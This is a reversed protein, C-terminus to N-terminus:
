CDHIAVRPKGTADTRSNWHPSVLSSVVLRRTKQTAWLVSEQLGDVASDRQPVARQCYSFPKKILQHCGSRHEYHNVSKGKRNCVNFLMLKGEIPIWKEVVERVFADAIVSCVPGPASEPM